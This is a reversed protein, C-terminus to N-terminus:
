IRGPEPLISYDQRARFAAQVPTAAPDRMPLVSPAIGKPTGMDADCLQEFFRHEAGAIGDGVVVAIEKRGRRALTWRLLDNGQLAMLLNIGLGLVTQMSPTMPIVEPLLGVGITAALFLVLVLWMRHYILWLFPVFLAPWSFGEKVFVLRDSQTAVIRPDDSQHHVSYVQLSM